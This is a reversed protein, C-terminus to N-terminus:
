KGSLWHASLVAFDNFNVYSDAPMSLDCLNNWHSDIPRALWALSFLYLDTLDVMGNFNFDGLYTFETAGMDVVELYEPPDAQGTDITSPDNIFRPHRTVDWPIRENGDGDCDIDHEDKPTSLNNGADIGPSDPTLRLDDDPTGAIADYGNPDLFNPNDDINGMGPYVNEDFENADQICCYNVTPVGIKNYIQGSQDAGDADRNNWLICNTLFPNSQDNYIGGGSQGTSNKSFTCNILNPDSQYNDLGGGHRGSHNGSFICNILNASCNYFHLGGGYDGASNGNLTCNILNLDGGSQSYIGGGYTATNGTFTSQIIEGGGQNWWIGGGSNASNDQFTCNFIRPNSNTIYIGGGFNGYNDRFVCHILKPFSGSCYIGGGQSSYGHIVTLGEISLNPDAATEPDPGFQALRHHELTTGQCDIITTSVTEPNNPDVSRLTIAKGLFDLDRNGKDQYTGALVIVTGYEYAIDIAEQISDYPHMISGNEGPDSIHPNGPMPDNPGDDDVYVVELREVFDVGWRNGSATSYDVSFGTTVTRSAFFYGDKMPMITYTTLSDLLFVYIGQSNTTAYYTEGQPGVAKVTVGSIPNGSSDVIRGSLLEGTETPFINYICEVFLEYEIVNPINYWGNYLGSLGMNVHHYLTESHYGYGDLVVTHSPTLENDAMLCILVPHAYDLNPNIMNILEESLTESVADVYVARRFNFLSPNNLVYSAARLDSEAGNATYNSNVTVGADYCLAGIAERSNLPTGCGPNMANQIHVWNYPGGWGDGGRTSVVTLYGDVWISLNHIGIGTTPHQHYALLQAVATAVDGCPYNDSDGYDCPDFASGPPTYYNYCAVENIDCCTTQGWNSDLLPSVWVDSISTLGLIGLTDPSQGLEILRRWKEQAALAAAFVTPNQMTEADRVMQIRGAIDQTVFRRLPNDSSNTYSGLEIFSIIPEVMDDAPVIMYGNPILNVVFYLLEEEANYYSDIEGVQRGLNAGMPQSDETLWGQVMQRVQMITVETAQLNDTFGPMGMFALVLILITKICHQVSSKQAGGIM